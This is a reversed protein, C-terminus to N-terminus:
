KSDARCTKPYGSGVLHGISKPSLRRASIEFPGHSVPVCAPMRPPDFQVRGTRRGFFGLLNICSTDLNWPDYSADSDARHTRNRARLGVSSGTQRSSPALDISRVWCLPSTFDISRVTMGGPPVGGWSFPTPM